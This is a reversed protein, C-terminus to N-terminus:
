AVFFVAYGVGKGGVKILWGTMSVITSAALSKLDSKLYIKLPVALCNLFFNYRQPIFHRWTSM